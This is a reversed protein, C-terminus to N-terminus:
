APVGTRSPFVKGPNLTRNQSFAQVISKQQELSAASYQLSLDERNRLGVGYESSISGGLSAAFGRILRACTEARHREDHDNADFLLFTHMTGDGCHIVNAAELAHKLVLQETSELHSQLQSLPVSCDLSLFNKVRGIAGYIANRGLWSEDETNFAIPRHRKALAAILDAERDVAATGGSLEVLVLAKAQLPYGCPRFAETLHIANKDMLDLASVCRCKELILQCFSLASGITSFGAIQSKRNEPLRHLRLQAETILGMQGESGCVLALAPDDSSLEVIEGDDLVLSASELNESTGGYRLYSSGSSNTAINGGISCTRQSSPNPAYFWGAHEVYKSVQLNSIGAQVRILGQKDDFELVSKMCALSILVAGNQPVVGGVQSTGSGRPVVPVGRQYCLKLVNQVQGTTQPKAIAAARGAHTFFGDTEYVKLARNSTVLGNAPLAQALDALLQPSM